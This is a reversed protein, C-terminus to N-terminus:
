AVSSLSESGRKGSRRWRKVTAESVGLRTALVVADVKHRRVDAVLRDLSPRRDKAGSVGHDVYEVAPWGRAEVYRRLEFACDWPERGRSHTDNWRALLEIRM